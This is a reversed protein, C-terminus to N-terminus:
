DSKKRDVKFTANIANVPCINSCTQCLICETSMIRMEKNKYELLKIQMPCNQECKKCDVCKKHDIEMKLLSYKSGIKQFVPIPCIYKCFARNDKLLIALVLGICYYILNGFVLWYLEITQNKYFSKGFTSFFFLFISIGLITFFHIYRIYTAKKNVNQQPAKWPLLDMFMATWCAWGCWGRGFIVPGIIKAIFYHLTAGAFVGSFLYFWFGEIQLDEQMFFGVYFLLYSGILLQTLQRGIRLKEKPLAGSLFVGLALSTGIYCFNFIYFIKGTAIYRWFAIGYFLTLFILPLVITEKTIKLKSKL